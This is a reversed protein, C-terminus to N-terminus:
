AEEVNCVAEEYHTDQDFAVPGNEDIMMEVSEEAEEASDAEINVYGGETRCVYVRFTKQPM